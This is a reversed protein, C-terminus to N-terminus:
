DKDPYTNRRHWVDGRGEKKEKRKKEKNVKREEVAIDQTANAMEEDPNGDSQSYAVLQVVNNRVVMQNPPLINVAGVLVNHVRQVQVINLISM